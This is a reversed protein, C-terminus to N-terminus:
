RGNNKMEVDIADMLLLNINIPHSEVWKQQDPRLTVIHKCRAHDIANQVFISFNINGEKLFTQQDDTITVARYETM